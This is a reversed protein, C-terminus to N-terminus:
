RKYEELIALIEDACDPPLDGILNGDTSFAFSHVEDVDNWCANNRWYEKSSDQPAFMGQDLGGYKPYVIKDIKRQMEFIRDLLNETM